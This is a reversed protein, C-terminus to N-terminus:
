NRQNQRRRSNQGQQHRKVNREGDNLKKLRFSNALVKLKEIFETLEIKRKDRDGCAYVHSLYSSAHTIIRGINGKKIDEINADIFKQLNPDMM